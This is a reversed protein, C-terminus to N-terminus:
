GLVNRELLNPELLDVQAAQTGDNGGMDIGLEQRLHRGASSHGRRHRAPAGVRNREQDGLSPTQPKSAAPPATHASDDLANSVSGVSRARRPPSKKLVWRQRLVERTTRLSLPEAAM